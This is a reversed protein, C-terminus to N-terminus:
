ARENFVVRDKDPDNPNTHSHQRVSQWLRGTEAEHREWHAENEEIYGNLKDEIPKGILTKNLQVCQSRIGNCSQMSVFTPLLKAMELAHANVANELSNLKEENRSFKKILIGILIAIVGGLASIIVLLVDQIAISM